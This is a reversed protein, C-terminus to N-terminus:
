MQAITSYQLGAFSGIDHYEVGLSNALAGAIFVWALIRFANVIDEDIATGNDSIALRRTFAWPM